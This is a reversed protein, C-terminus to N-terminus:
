AWNLLSLLSFMFDDKSVGAAPKDGDLRETEISAISKGAQGAIM